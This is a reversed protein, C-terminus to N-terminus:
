YSKSRRARGEQKYRTDNKHSIQEVRNGTDPKGHVEFAKKEEEEKEVKNIIKSLFKVEYGQYIQEM